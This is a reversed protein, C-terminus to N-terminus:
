KVDAGPCDILRLTGDLADHLRGPAGRTAIGKFGILYSCSEDSPVLYRGARKHNRWIVDFTGLRPLGSSDSFRTSSSTVYALTRSLASRRLVFYHVSLPPCEPIDATKSVVILSAVPKDEEGIHRIQVYEQGTLPAERRRDTTGTACVVAGMAFLAIPVTM